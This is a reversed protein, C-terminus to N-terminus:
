RSSRRLNSLYKRSLSRKRGTIPKCSTLHRLCGMFMRWRANYFVLNKKIMYSRDQNKKMCLDISREINVDCGYNKGFWGASSNLYM